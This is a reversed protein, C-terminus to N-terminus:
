LKGPSLIPYWWQLLGQRIRLDQRWCISRNPDEKHIKTGLALWKVIPLVETLNPWTLSHYYLGQSWCIWRRHSKPIGSKRRLLSTWIWDSLSEQWHRHSCIQRPWLPGEDNQTSTISVDNRSPWWCFCDKQTWRSSQSTKSYSSCWKAQMFGCWGYVM